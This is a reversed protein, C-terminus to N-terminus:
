HTFPNAPFAEDLRSPERGLHDLTQRALSDDARIQLWQRAARLATARQSLRPLLAALSARASTSPSAGELRIAQLYLPVAELPRGHRELMNGLHDRLRASRPNRDVDARLRVLAPELGDAKEVLSSLRIALEVDDSNLQLGERV